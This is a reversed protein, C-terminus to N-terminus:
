QVPLAVSRRPRPSRRRTYNRNKRLTQAIIVSGFILGFFLAAGIIISGMLPNLGSSKDIGSVQALMKETAIEEQPIGEIVNTEIGALLEAVNEEAVIEEVPALAPASKLMSAAVWGDPDDEFNINWFWYNSGDISEKVPGGIVVGLAGQSQTGILIGGPSKRINALSKVEVSEDLSFVVSPKTSLSPSPPPTSVPPPSSPLPPPSSPTEVVPPPPPAPNGVRFGADTLGIVCQKEYDQLIRDNNTDIVVDYTGQNPPKNWIKTRPIKADASATFTEIGGSIDSLQDGTQWTKDSMIYIKGSEQNAPLCFGEIYIEDDNGFQTTQVGNQNTLFPLEEAFVPFALLLFIVICFLKKM